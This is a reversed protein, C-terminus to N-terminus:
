ARNKESASVVRLLDDVGFSDGSRNHYDIVVDAYQKYLNERSSLLLPYCRALAQADTEDPNKNFWGNWLVPRQNAIYGELMQEKIESPTSLYGVTTYRCLKQLMEAGTYIVSGTTDIVVDKECDHISEFIETLVEIEYALYTAERQRYRSEYPFGMWEGVDILTGDPQPLEPALKDAILDDCCFRTFGREALRTSWYSKGSGSMGILSLRMMWVLKGKLEDPKAGYFCAYKACSGFEFACNYLLTSKAAM